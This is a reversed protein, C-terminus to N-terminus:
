VSNWLDKIEEATEKTIFLEKNDTKVLGFTLKKSELSSEQCMEIEVDKFRLIHSTNEFSLKEEFKCTELVEDLDKYVIRIKGEKELIHLFLDKDHPYVGLSFYQTDLLIHNLNILGITKEYKVRIKEVEVEYIKSM